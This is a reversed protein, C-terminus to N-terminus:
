RRLLGILAAAAAAIIPVGPPTFPTLVLAIGGGLVAAAVATRSGLQGVLLALFLAPFAADLGLAAPDGLAEGGIVGVLTGVLWALWLVIGAGILRRGDFEGDGKAAIAWSEDVVLQALVFRRLPGGPLFRAISIGIPIYRANLLLAAAIAALPQGGAGIVAAAAFQASGAFTLASMVFAPVGGMGGTSVSIVGFSVGFLGVAVALPVATTAGSRFPSSLTPPVSM